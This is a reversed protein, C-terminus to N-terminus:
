SVEETLKKIGGTYASSVLTVALASISMIVILLWRKWKSWQMPNRPDYPLFIVVYPDEITGSGKYQFNIVDATVHTQDTILSWHSAPAQQPQKQAEIDITENEPTSSSEDSLMALSSTAKSTEASM